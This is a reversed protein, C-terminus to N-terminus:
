SQTELEQQISRPPLFQGLLATGEPDVAEDWDDIKVAGLSPM